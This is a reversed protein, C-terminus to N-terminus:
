SGQKMMNYITGRSASHEKALRYISENENCREIIKNRQTQTLKPFRGLYKGNEKAKMIGEYQRQKSVSREFEAFSGLIQFLLKSMNHDNQGDLTMNGKQFKVSEGKSLLDKVIGELDQLSRGLCDLYNINLTDKGKCIGLSERLQPRNRGESKAYLIQGTHNMYESTAGLRSYNQGFIAVPLTTDTQTTPNINFFQSRLEQVMAEAKINEVTLFRRSM